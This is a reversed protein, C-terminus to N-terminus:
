QEARALVAVAVRAAGAARLTRAAEAATAGTTMVDDVLLISRGAVPVGRRVAFAGRVNEKRGSASQATQRPTHRVRRLWNWGAPIGLARSLAGALAASQNYGRWMRRWFHLPVPVVFDTRLARFAAMARGSWREALLEALEEGRRDKLRLVVQRLLGDYEGMRLAAAFAFHEDRCRPCHGGV